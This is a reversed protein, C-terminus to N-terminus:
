GKPVGYVFGALTVASSYGILPPFGVAFTAAWLILWGGPIDRWRQAVPALWGFIKENFVLFLIVTALVVINFVVLCIKQVVSLKNFNRLARRQLRTSQTVLRTKFSQPARSSSQSRRRFAPSSSHSRRQESPSDDVPLALARATSAYTDPM